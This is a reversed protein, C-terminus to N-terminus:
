PRIGESSAGVQPAPTPSPPYFTLRATAPSADVDRRVQVATPIRASATM